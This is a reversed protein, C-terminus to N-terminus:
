SSLHGLPPVHGPKRGSPPHLSPGPVRGREALEAWPPAATFREACLSLTSGSPSRLRTRWARVRLHVLPLLLRGGALEKITPPVAAVDPSLSRFSLDGEFPEETEGGLGSLCWTASGETGRFSLRCGGRALRGDQTEVFLCTYRSIAPPDALYGARRLVRLLRAPASGAPLGFWGVVSESGM